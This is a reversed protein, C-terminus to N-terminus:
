RVERNPQGRGRLLRDPHEDLKDANLRLSRLTRHLETLTQQLEPAAGEVGALDKEVRALLKGAHEVTASLDDMTDTTRDVVRTVQADVSDAAREVRDAAARFDRLAPGLEKDLTALVHRLQDLGHNLKYLSDALDPNHVLEQLGELTSIAQDAIEQMPLNELTQSLEDLGSPITPIEPYPTQYGSLVVETEPYLDLQVFLQGTILSQLQLQGRLGKAILEQLTDDSVLRKLPDGVEGNPQIAEIRRPEIDIIVPIKFSYDRPDVHVSIDSVSGIRVGRFTVPAGVSLGKVSRDFYLIYRQHQTLLGGRGFFVLGAVALVIAGVVFAGILKPDARRLM